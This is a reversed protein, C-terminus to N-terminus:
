PVPIGTGERAEFVRDIGPAHWREKKGDPWVIIVDGAALADGLGFHAIGESASLYSGDTATRRWVTPHGPRELGVRAGVTRQGPARVRLWHKRSGVQNLLLMAPGGNNNVVADIDGDNDIDGFAIGRSVETIGLPAVPQFRGSSFRLLQMPQVFPRPQGRESDMVTVAGNGILLELQGDNDYDIWSVGFGTNGFTLSRLGTQASVDTFFGGGENHYVTDGERTLNTVVIDDAGDNDYDGLAIGMGAHPNGDESFAVGAPLANNVFAGNRQNIWLHNAAGDNAVYLDPWGDGNFDSAVVGLGPGTAAAIGARATVNRFTGNGENHYLRAALARYAKPTCYDPAGTTQRCHKANNESFDVYRCLFLDLRGDRDYDFFSASTHWGDDQIGANRSVDTFTGDGNNHYLVNAGYNTVLLDPRGDGDYDGVAVGMGWGAYGVGAQATVDTFHLRGSPILDNRFLKNGGAAPDGQVLYVDLDGDGDYDFLAVGSGMIEPLRYQGQAGNHHQFVLGSERAADRFPAAPEVRISPSSCAALSCCILAAAARM